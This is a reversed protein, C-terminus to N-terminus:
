QEPLLVGLRKQLPDILEEADGVAMVDADHKSQEVADPIRTRLESRLMWRLRVNVVRAPDLARARRNEAIRLAMGLQTRVDLAHEAAEALVFPDLGPIEEVLRVVVVG